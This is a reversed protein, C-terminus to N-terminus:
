LNIFIVHCSQEDIIINHIIEMERVLRTSTKLVPTMVCSTTASAHSSQDNVIYEDYFRGTTTCKKPEGGVLISQKKNVLRSNTTIILICNVVDWIQDYNSIFYM